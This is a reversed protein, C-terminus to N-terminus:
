ASYTPSLAPQLPYFALGVSLMSSLHNPTPCSPHAPLNSPFAHSPPGAWPTSLLLPLARSSCLGTSVLSPPASGSPPLFPAEPVLTSRPSPRRRLDAVQGARSNVSEPRAKGAERKGRQPDRSVASSLRWPGGARERGARGSGRSGAPCAARSGSSGSPAGGGGDGRTAPPSNPAVGLAALLAQSPRSRGSPHPAPPGPRPAESPTPTRQRGPHSCPTRAASTGM